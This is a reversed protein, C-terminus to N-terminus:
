IQARRREGKLILGQVAKELLVSLLVTVATWAFLETTELYIKSDHLATGVSSKYPCIVEAAVGAKWAMGMASNVAALFYPRVAPLYLGSLIKSKPVSFCRAMALLHEDTSLIGKETNAWVAPIVVLMSTLVPVKGLSLWIVALIIFSAVPTAKIVSLIPRLLMSALRSKATLVATLVGLVSGLLFGKTVRLLSTAVGLWFSKTQCLEAIKLVVSVPSPVLLDSGVAASIGAWVLLWFILVAAHECFKKM